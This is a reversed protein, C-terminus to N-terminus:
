EWDLNELALRLHGASKIHRKILSHKRGMVISRIEPGSKRYGNTGGIMEHLLGIMDYVDQQIRLRTPRGLDFFDILRVDFGLGQRQVMINDSHIDGHYEGMFHIPEVGAALAHLLHLAEFPALRQGKQRKVFSSLMEGDAFDSVMFEVENGGIKISDRHHYQIIIPCARLKFLKRAYKNLPPERREPRNYFLKAARIVGTRREEIKYVEGEWGSGLLEVIYYHRGLTRGPSLNYGVVSM